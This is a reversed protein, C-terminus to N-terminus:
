RARGKGMGDAHAAAPRAVCLLGQGGRHDCLGRPVRRSGQRLRGATATKAECSSRSTVTRCRLRDMFFLPLEEAHRDAGALFQGAEVLVMDEPPMLARRKTFSNRITDLNLVVAAIFGISVLLAIGLM